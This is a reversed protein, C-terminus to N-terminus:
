VTEFGARLGYGELPEDSFPFGLLPSPRMRCLKTLVEWCKSIYRGDPLAHCFDDLIPAATDFVPLMAEPVPLM